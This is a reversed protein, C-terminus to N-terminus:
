IRIKNFIISVLNSQSVLDQSSSNSSISYFTFFSISSTLDLLELSALVSYNRGASKGVQTGPHSRHNHRLRICNKGDYGAARGPQEDV